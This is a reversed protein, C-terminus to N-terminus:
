GIFNRAAAGFKMPHVLVPVAQVLGDATQSFL